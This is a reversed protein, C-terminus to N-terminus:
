RWHLGCVEREWWHMQDDSVPEDLWLHVTEAADDESAVLSTRVSSIGVTKKGRRKHLQRFHIRGSAESRM